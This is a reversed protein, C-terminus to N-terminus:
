AASITALFVGDGSGPHDWSAGVPRLSKLMPNRWVSINKMAPRYIVAGSEPDLPSGYAGFNGDREM